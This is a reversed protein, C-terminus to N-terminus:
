AEYSLISKFLDKIYNNLKTKLLQKLEEKSVEEMCNYKKYFDLHILTQTVTGILTNMMLNVDVKKKFDGKKQGEAIILELLQMNKMKFDNLLETIVPNNELLQESILIKHFMSKQLTRDIYDTILIEVKKFPTYKEVNVLQELRPTISGMREQFLAQMLGEKSGFYYSIMSINVGAAEAIDRVSTGGFGKQSFLNEAVNIIHQRKEISSM